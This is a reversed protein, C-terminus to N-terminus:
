FAEPWIMVRNAFYTDAICVAFKESDCTEEDTGGYEGITGLFESLPRLAENSEAQLEHSYQLALQNFDYAAGAVERLNDQNQTAWQDM